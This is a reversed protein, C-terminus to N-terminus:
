KDSLATEGKVYKSEKKRGQNYTPVEQLTKM